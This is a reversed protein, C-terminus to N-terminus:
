RQMLAPFDVVWDQQQEPTYPCIVFCLKCQYCEDVVHRHQDDTLEDVPSRGGRDDIMRFLDKFSPCLKVCVRCDSCIHFTRDREARTAAPDFWTPDLPDYCHQAM